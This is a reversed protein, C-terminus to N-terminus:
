GARAGALLLPCIRYREDGTDRYSSELISVVNSLGIRDAWEFPGYPYNTGLKMALDIDERTATGEELTIYAENIIMAIIRPTVMGPQDAVIEFPTALSSCTSALLERNSEPLLSVELVPRNLFTPLGCFGFIQGKSKGTHGALSSLRSCSSELFVVMPPEATYEALHAPNHPSVFDFVADATTGAKAAQLVNPFVSWAHAEGFKLRCEAAQEATGIIAIKM